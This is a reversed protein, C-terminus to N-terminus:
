TKGKQERKRKPNTPEPRSSLSPQPPPPLKPQTFKGPAGKGLQSEILEMLIRQSKRQIGMEDSTIVNVQQQFDVSASTNEPSPPQNFLEFEDSSDSLTIIGKPNEEEEKEGEEEEEKRVPQSSSAEVSPIGVFLPQSRFLM